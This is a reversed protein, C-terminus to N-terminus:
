DEKWCDKFMTILEKKEELISLEIDEKNEIKVKLLVEHYNKRKSKYINKTITIIKIKEKKSKIYVYNNKEIDKLIKDTVILRIHNEKIYTGDIKYYRNYKFMKFCIMM